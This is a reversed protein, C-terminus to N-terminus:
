RSTDVIICNHNQCINELKKLFQKGKETDYYELFLKQNASLNVREFGNECAYEMQSKTIPNLSGCAVYLGKEKKM